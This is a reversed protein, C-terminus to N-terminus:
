VLPIEMLFFHPFFFSRLRESLPWAFAGASDDIRDLFQKMKAMGTAPTSRWLELFNPVQFSVHNQTGSVLFFM